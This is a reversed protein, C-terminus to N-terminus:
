SRRQLEALAAARMVAVPPEAGTWLAVQLAAQHVLMGLGDVTRAGAARAARLLPTDLPHYVLDAVVHARHLAEGAVPSSDDPAMGVSTANVVLSAGAVIAARDSWSAVEADVLGAVVRAADPRRACVAVRAGAEGLALVIARAAAGSGLVVTRVGDVAVDADALARLFGEGDTSDGHLRGDALRTVTNVSRLAAAHASCEDCADAVAAKHPMTVSLGAIGLVRMATLAAPAEGDAVDFAVYTWDLGLARYAANHLVPSLSHRVPHGIVAAVRTAGTTV